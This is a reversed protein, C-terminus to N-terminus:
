FYRSLEPLLAGSPLGLLLGLAFKRGIAAAANTLTVTTKEDMRNDSFDLMGVGAANQLDIYDGVQTADLIKQLTHYRCVAKFIKYQANTL